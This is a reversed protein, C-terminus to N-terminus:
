FDISEGAKTITLFRVGKGEAYERFANGAAKDPEFHMPVFLKVPIRDIFQEAGRMYDSGMRADVPFMCVDLGSVVEAIENLERLYHNEAQKVEEDTSEDKWHWNNLDGAHFIRKDETKIYFSIGVDTSGFARVSLKEDQYVDGKKLFVAEEATARKRKLIDKSFIYTINEKIEKWKLIEPNFHDAHFHSSLIYLPRAQKLLHDHVYGASEGQTDLFYDILIDYTATRIVFGSHFIYILEM